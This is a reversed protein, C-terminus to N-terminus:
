GAERVVCLTPPLPPSHPNREGLWARVLCSAQTRHVVRSRASSPTAMLALLPLFFLLFDVAARGRVTQSDGCSPGAAAAFSARFM